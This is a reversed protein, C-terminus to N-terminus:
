SFSLLDSILFKLTLLMLQKIAISNHGQHWAQCRAEPDAYIGDGHDACSFSTEPVTNFIPYDAEPEGPSLIHYCSKDKFQISMVFRPCLGQAMGPSRGLRPPARGRGAAAGGEEGPRGGAAAADAEAASAAASAAAAAHHRAPQRAARLQLGGAGPRAVPGAGPRHRCTLRGHNENDNIM